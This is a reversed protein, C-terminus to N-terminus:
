RRIESQGAARVADVGSVQRRLHAAAEGVEAGLFAGFDLVGATQQAPGPGGPLQRDDGGGRGRGSSCWM